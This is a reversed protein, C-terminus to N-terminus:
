PPLFDPPTMGGPVIEVPDAVRADRHQMAAMFAASFSPAVKVECACIGWVASLTSTVTHSNSSFGSNVYGTTIDYATSEGSGVDFSGTWGNNWTAGPANKNAQGGVAYAGNDTNVAAGFTDTLTTGATDSSGAGTQVIVSAVTGGSLDAGSASIIQWICGSQTKSWAIHVSGTGPSSGAIAGAIAVTDTPSAITNWDTQKIGSWTLNLGSNSTITVTPSGATTYHGRVGIMYFTDNAPSFSATDFTSTNTTSQNHLTDFFTIALVPRPRAPPQHPRREWRRPRPRRFPVPVVVLLGAVRVPCPVCWRRTM